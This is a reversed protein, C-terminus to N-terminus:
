GGNDSQNASKRLALLCHGLSLLCSRGLDSLQHISLRSSILPQVYYYTHDFSVEATIAAFRRLSAPLLLHLQGAYDARHHSGDLIFREFPSLEQDHLRQVFIKLRLA